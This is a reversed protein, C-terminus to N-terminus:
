VAKARTFNAAIFAAVALVVFLVLHTYHHSAHPDTVFVQLVGFAYLIGIVLFVVGLLALGLSLANSRV